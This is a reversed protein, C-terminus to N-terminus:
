HNTLSEKWTCPHSVTAVKSLALALANAVVVVAGCAILAKTPRTDFEDPWLSIMFDAPLSTANYVALADASLGLVVAGVALVIITFGVRLADIVRVLSLKAQVRSDEPEVEFDSVSVENKLHSSM